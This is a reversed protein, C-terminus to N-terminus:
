LYIYTTFLPEAGNKRAWIRTEIRGSDTYTYTVGKGDDYEKFQLLGSTEDYHWRTIDAEGATDSPWEEGDWGSGGRFTHMETMRGYGDYAFMVPEAAEGWTHTAQGRVNYLCIAPQKPRPTM